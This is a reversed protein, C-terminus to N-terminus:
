IGMESKIPDVESNISYTICLLFTWRYNSQGLEVNIRSMQNSKATKLLKLIVNKEEIPYTM